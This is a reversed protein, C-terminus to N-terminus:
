ATWNEVLLGPVDAYHKENHTVVTLGHSLAHAAILRDFSGRKFPLTAYALAAKYDFDLVPVEEVFAQLQDIAPPLANMSGFAVEAFAVASTVIDGEDCEAARRVVNVNSNMTLYVIINSDLMYKM